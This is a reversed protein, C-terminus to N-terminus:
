NKTIVFSELEGGVSQKITYEMDNFSQVWAGTYQDDDELDGTFRQEFRYVADESVVVLVTTDYDHECYIHHINSDGIAWSNDAFTKSRTSNNIYYGTIEEFLDRLSIEM